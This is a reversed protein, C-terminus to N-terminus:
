CSIAINNPGHSCFFFYHVHLTTLLAHILFWGRKVAGFVFRLNLTLGSTLVSLRTYYRERAAFISYQGISMMIPHTASWFFFAYNLFVLTIKMLFIDRALLYITFLIIENNCEIKRITQVYVKNCNFYRAFYVLFIYYLFFIKFEIFNPLVM